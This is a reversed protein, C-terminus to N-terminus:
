VQNKRVWKNLRVLQAFQRSRFTLFGCAAAHIAGIKLSGTFTKTQASRATQFNMIFSTRRNMHMKRTKLSELFGAEALLQISESFSAIVTEKEVDADLPDFTAKLVAVYVQSRQRRILNLIGREYIPSLENYFSVVDAM